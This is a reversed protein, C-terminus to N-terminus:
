NQESIFALSLRELAVGALHAISIEILIRGRSKSGRATSTVDHLVEKDWNEHPSISLCDSLRDPPTLTIARIATKKVRWGIVDIEYL